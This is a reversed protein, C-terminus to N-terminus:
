ASPNCRINRRTTGGQPDPNRDQCFLTLIPIRVWLAFRIVGVKAAGRHRAAGSNEPRGGGRVGAGRLRPLEGGAPHGAAAEPRGRGDEQGESSDGDQDAGGRRLPRAEGPRRLPRRHPLQRHRLQRRVCDHKVAKVIALMQEPTATIGGHNELALISATSRRTTARRRLPRSAAPAPRTRPTARRWTAPSFASRRAAWARRTSWGTAAGVAKAAGLKEPATVCFNNGVATGSVDLGLAPASARSTRGPVGADDRPFYYQTFEVADLGIEAALEIFDDYTMEPKPKKNLDLYKRFSYGALSLRINPKGVRRIPEIATADPLASVAGAALATGLFQRRSPSNM